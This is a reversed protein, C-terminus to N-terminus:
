LKEWYESSALKNLATGTAFLQILGCTSCAIVKMKSTKIFGGLGPLLPPAGDGSIEIKSIFLSNNGCHPCSSKHESGM